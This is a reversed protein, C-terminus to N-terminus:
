IIEQGITSDVTTKGTRKNLVALPTSFFLKIAKALCWELVPSTPWNARARAVVGQGSLWGIKGIIADTKYGTDSLILIGLSVYTYTAGKVVGKVVPM